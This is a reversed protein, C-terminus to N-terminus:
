LLLTLDESRLADRSYIWALPLYRRPQPLVLHRTSPPHDSADRSIQAIGVKAM